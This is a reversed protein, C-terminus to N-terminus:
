RPAPAEKFQVPIRGVAYDKRLPYGEWDEPMLIRTLDPHGDFRIGFMDYVERELAETGPWLSFLTPIAADSDPVQARVRIRQRSAMSVLNAVVEFREPTIGEPLDRGRHALYDVATVDVCMDYSDAKLATLLDLYGDRTCHVVTQGFSDTVPWGHMEALAHPEEAAPEDGPEPTKGAGDSM